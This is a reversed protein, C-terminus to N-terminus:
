VDGDKLCPFYSWCFRARGVEGAGGLLTGVVVSLVQLM